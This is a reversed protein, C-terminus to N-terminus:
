PRQPARRSVHMRHPAVVHRAGFEDTKGQLSTLQDQNALMSNLTGEMVGRAEDVERQVRSVSDHSGKDEYDACLREFASTLRETTPVRKVTGPAGKGTAVFTDVGLLDDAIDSLQSLMGVRSM